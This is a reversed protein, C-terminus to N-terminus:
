SRSRYRVDDAGQRMSELLKQVFHGYDQGETLAQGEAAISTRLSDDAVLDGALERLEAPTSFWLAGDGHRLPTGDTGPETLQAAGSATIERTRMNHAGACQPHLVNVSVKARGLLAGASSGFVADSGKGDLRGQWGQGIVHLDLDVLEGLFRERRPSWVGVFVLDLDREHDVPTVPFWRADYGFPVVATCVDPWHEEVLQAQRQSFLVVLDVARMAEILRAQEPGAWFPNDPLYLVTYTSRRAIEISEADLSRGKIIVAVDPSHDAIAEVLRAGTNRRDLSRRARTIIGPTQGPVTHTYPDVLAITHEAPIAAAISNLLTGNTSEGFLLINM